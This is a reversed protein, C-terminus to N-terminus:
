SQLYKAMMIPNSGIGAKGYLTYKL